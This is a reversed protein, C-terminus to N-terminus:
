ATFLKRDYIIITDLYTAGTVVHLVHVWALKSKYLRLKCGYFAYLMQEMLTIGKTNDVFILSPQALKRPVFRPIIVSRSPETYNAKENLYGAKYFVCIINEVYFSNLLVLQYLSTL